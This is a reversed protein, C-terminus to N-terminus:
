KNIGLINYLMQIFMYCLWIILMFCLVYETPNQTYSTGILADIYNIMNEGKNCEYVVYDNYYNFM